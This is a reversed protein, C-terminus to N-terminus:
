APRSRWHEPVDPHELFVIEDDAGAAALANWVHNLAEDRSDSDLTVDFVGTDPDPRGVEADSLQEALRKYAANALAGPEDVVLTVVQESV